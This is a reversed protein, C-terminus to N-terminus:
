SEKPPYTPFPEISKTEVCPAEILRRTQRSAYEEAIRRKTAEWDRGRYARDVEDRRKRGRGSMADLIRKTLELTIAGGGAAGLLSVVATLQENM